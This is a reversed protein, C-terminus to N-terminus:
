WSAVRNLGAFAPYLIVSLWPAPFSARRTRRPPHPFTCGTLAAVRRTRVWNLITMIESAALGGPRQRKRTGIVLLSQHWAPAFSKWVDDVHCFLELLSM